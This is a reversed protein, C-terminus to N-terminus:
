KLPLGKFINYAKCVSNIYATLILRHISLKRPLRKSLGHTANKVVRVRGGFKNYRRLFGAPYSVEGPTRTNFYVM